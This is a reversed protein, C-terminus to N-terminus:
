RQKRRIFKRVWIRDCVPCMMWDCVKNKFNLLDCNCNIKDQDTEYQLLQVSNEAVGWDLRPSLKNSM